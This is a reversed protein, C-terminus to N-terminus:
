GPARKLLNKKEAQQKYYYVKADLLMDALIVGTVWTLERPKQIRRNFISPIHTINVDSGNYKSSWRHISRILWGFNVDTM